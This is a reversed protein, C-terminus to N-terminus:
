EDAWLLPLCTRVSSPGSPDLTEMPVPLKAGSSVFTPSKPNAPFLPRTRQRFYLTMWSYKETINARM